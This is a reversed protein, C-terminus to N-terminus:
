VEQIEPGSEKLRVRTACVDKMKHLPSVKLKFM